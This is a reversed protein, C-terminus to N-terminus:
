SPLGTKTTLLVLLLSGHAATNQKSEDDIKVNLADDRFESAENVQALQEETAYGDLDIEGGEVKQIAEYLFENVDRQNKLNELDQPTPAFRGKADRFPNPNVQVADTTLEFRVNQGNKLGVGEIGEGDVKPFQSFKTGAAKPDQESM